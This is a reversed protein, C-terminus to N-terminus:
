QTFYFKNQTDNILRFFPNVTKDSYKPHRTLKWEIIDNIWVKM